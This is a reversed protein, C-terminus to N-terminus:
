SKIVVAKATPWIYDPTKKFDVCGECACYLEGTGCYGAKSCCHATSSDPNCIPVKGTSLKPALPGCKGIHQANEVYTWWTPKIYIYDPNKKFDVCGECECHEKSNGCYGGNSCCHASVDDPNCTPIDGSPLAPATQGCRGRRGDGADM